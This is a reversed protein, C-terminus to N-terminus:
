PSGIELLVGLHKRGELHFNHGFGEDVLVFVVEFHEREPEGRGSAGRARQKEVGLGAAVRTAMM